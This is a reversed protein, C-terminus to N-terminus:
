PELTIGNQEYESLIESFVDRTRSELERYKGGMMTGGFDCNLLNREFSDLSKLTLGYGESTLKREIRSILGPLDAALSVHITAIIQDDPEQGFPIAREMARLEDAAAHIRDYLDVRIM